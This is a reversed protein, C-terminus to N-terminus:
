KPSIKAITKAKAKARLIKKVCAKLTYEGQAVYAEASEACYM